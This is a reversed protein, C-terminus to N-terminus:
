AYSDYPGFEAALKNESVSYFRVMRDNGCVGVLNGDFSMKGDHVGGTHDFSVVRRGTLASYVVIAGGTNAAVHRGDPSLAFIHVGLEFERTLKLREVRLGASGASSDAFALSAALGVLAYRM